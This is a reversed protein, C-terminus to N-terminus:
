PGVSVVVMKDPQIRTKFATHVDDATVSLVKDTFTDFYDLPLEYFALSVLNSAIAANSDFRLSYGKTINDKAAQLSAALPKDEIFHNLTKRATELALAAKQSRTQFSILFPGRDLLPLFYSRVDYALGQSERVSHGLQSILPDGGLMYNGVYFSFYNPDTHTIGVQGMLVHAQTSNYQIKVTKTANTYPAEPLKPARKGQPLKKVLTEAIEEAQSRTLDGVMVIRANQACCYQRYFNTVQAPKIALVSQKTGAPPTGYPHDPYLAAFFANEALDGPSQDQHDLFSLLLTKQHEVGETSFAPANLITVLTNIAPDLFNKETLTRLGIVTMDHDSSTSLIAGVNEFQEAVKEVSLKATGEALTNHTLESIGLYKGDYASGAAFIIKLELIPLEPTRVFYVPTQTSTTWHQIPLMTHNRAFAYRYFGVFVILLVACFIYYKKM